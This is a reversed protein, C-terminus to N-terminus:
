EGVIGGPDRKRLDWCPWVSKEAERGVLNVREEVSVTGESVAAEKM